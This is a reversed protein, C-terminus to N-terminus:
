ALLQHGDYRRNRDRFGSTDFRVSHVDNHIVAYMDVPFDVDDATRYM